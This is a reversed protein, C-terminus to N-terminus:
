RAEKPCTAVGFRYIIREKCGKVPCSITVLKGVGTPVLCVRPAM